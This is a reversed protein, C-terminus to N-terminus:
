EVPEINSNSKANRIEEELLLKMKNIASYIIIKVEKIIRNNEFKSYNRGLHTYHESQSLWRYYHYLFYFQNLDDNTSCKLAQSMCKIKCLMKDSRIDKLQIIGWPEGKNTKLYPSVIHYYRDQSSQLSPVVKEPYMKEYLESRLELAEKFFKVHEIDLTKIGKIFFDDDCSLLYLGEILDSIASRLLLNRSLMSYKDDRISSAIHINSGIRKILDYAVLSKTPEDEKLNIIKLLHKGFGNCLSLIDNYSIEINGM